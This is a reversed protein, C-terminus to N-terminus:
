LSGLGFLLRLKLKASSQMQLPRIMALALAVLAFDVLANPPELALLITTEPMCYGPVWYRWFKNLPQCQLFQMILLAMYTAIQVAGILYIWPRYARNVGFIRYYLACISLKALTQDLMTIIDAAFVM